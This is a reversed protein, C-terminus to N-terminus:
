ARVKGSIISYIKPSVLFIISKILERISRANKLPFRRDLLELANIDGSAYRAAMLYLMALRNRLPSVLSIPYRSYQIDLYHCVYVLAKINKIKNKSHTISGNRMYHYYFYIGTNYITESELLLIPTWIEDEHLIGEVFRLKKKKLFSNNCLYFPACFIIDSEKKTMQKLFDVTKYEGVPLIVKSKIHKEKSETITWAYGVLIDSKTNKIVNCLLDISNNEVYDDSDLFLIYDGSAMDIGRNRASSLGGNEKHEVKIFQYNRAMEDCMSACRDTSGDDILLIEISDLCTNFQIISEVCRELYKEVNYVPIIISLLLM